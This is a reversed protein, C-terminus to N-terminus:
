LTLRLGDYAYAVGDPLLAGDRVHDIMYTMHIFYTRKAALVRAADLAEEINMHTPHATPRLADLVVLDIGKAMEVAREPLRKCDTYYAMRKGTGAETFLLGLVQVRGHPLLVSEITGGPTELVQPMLRLDFAPYGSFEPKPRIAYPFVTQVRHIGEETSFVPLAEGNRLDIFRRLDDMGMIHDAHGHTLIFTDIRSLSNWICQLRFEPSADVQIHWGGMVVHVSTRTRWNRRDSLDCSKGPDHAIMPVGQSTGTGLFVIEM